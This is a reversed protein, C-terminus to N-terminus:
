KSINGFITEKLSMKSFNPLNRCFFRAVSSPPFCRFPSGRPYTGAKSVFMLSPQFPIGTVSV